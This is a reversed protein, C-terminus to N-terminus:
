TCVYIVPRGLGQSGIYPQTFIVDQDDGPKTFHNNFEGVHKRIDQLQSSDDLCKFMGGKQSVAHLLNAFQIL